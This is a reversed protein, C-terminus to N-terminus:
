IGVLYIGQVLLYSVEYYLIKTLISAGPYMTANLVHSHRHITIKNVGFELLMNWCTGLVNM